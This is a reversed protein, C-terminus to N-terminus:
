ARGAKCYLWRPLQDDLSACFGLWDEPKKIEEKIVVVRDIVVQGVRKVQDLTVPKGATEGGAYGGWAGTTDNFIPQMEGAEEWRIVKCPYPPM